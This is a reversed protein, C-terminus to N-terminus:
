QLKFAGISSNLENLAYKLSTSIEASIRENDNIEDILSALNEMKESTELMMESQAVSTKQINSNYSTVSEIADTITALKNLVDNTMGVCIESRKRTEDMTGGIKGSTFCLSQLLDDIRNTCTGTKSALVRVEDAVVAFGRGSEGARAAEIAANLALLNTQDAITRILDLIQTIQNTDHTVKDVLIVMEEVSKSLVSIKESSEKGLHFSHEIQAKVKHTYDSTENSDSAIQQATELLKEFTTSLQKSKHNHERVVNLNRTFQEDLNEIVHNISCNSESINGFINQLSSFLRNIAKSIRGIEDGSRINLRQTLDASERTLGEVLILLRNLPKFQVVLFLVTISLMLITCIVLAISIQKNIDSTVQQIYAQDIYANLKWEKNLITVSKSEKEYVLPTKASVIETGDSAILELNMGPLSFRQILENILSLNLIFFDTVNNKRKIITLFKEGQEDLVSSLTIGDEVRNAWQTYHKISEKDMSGKDSLAIKNMVKIVSQFGLKEKTTRIGIIGFNASEAMNVKDLVIKSIEANIINISKEVNDSFNLRIYNNVVYNVSLYSTLLTAVAFLIFLLFVKSRLSKM